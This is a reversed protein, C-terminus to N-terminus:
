VMKQLQQTSIHDRREWEGKKLRLIFNLSDTSFKNADYIVKGFIREDETPIFTKYCSQTATKLYKVVTNCLRPHKGTEVNCDLLFNKFNAKEENTFIIGDNKLVTLSNDIMNSRHAIIPDSSEM